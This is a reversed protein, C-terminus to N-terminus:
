LYYDGDITLLPVGRRAVKGLADTSVNVFYFDAGEEDGDRVGEGEKGGEKDGEEDGEEGGEGEKGGEKDGEENLGEPSSNPASKFDLESSSDLVSNSHSDSDHDTVLVKETSPSHGATLLQFDVIQVQDCRAPGYTASISLSVSKCPDELASRRAPRHGQQGVSGEESEADEAARVQGAEPTSSPRCGSKIQEDYVVKVLIPINHRLRPQLEEEKTISTYCGNEEELAGFDYSNFNNLSFEIVVETYFQSCTRAHHYTKVRALRLLREGEANLSRTGGPINQKDAFAGADDESCFLQFIDQRLRKHLLINAAEVEAISSIHKLVELPTPISDLHKTVLAKLDNTLEHLITPNLM